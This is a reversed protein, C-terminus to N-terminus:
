SKGDVWYCDRERDVRSPMKDASLGFVSGLVHMDGCPKPGNFYNETKRYHAVSDIAVVYTTGPTTRLPSAFNVSVWGEGKCDTDDLDM